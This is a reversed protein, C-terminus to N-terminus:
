KSELFCHVLIMLVHEERESVVIPTGWPDIKPGTKNLKYTFSKGIMQCMILDYHCINRSWVIIHSM